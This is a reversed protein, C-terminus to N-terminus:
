FLLMIAYPILIKNLIVELPDFMKHNTRHVFISLFFQNSALNSCNRCRKNKTKEGM